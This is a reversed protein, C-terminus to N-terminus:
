AGTAVALWDRLERLRIRAEAREARAEASYHGHKWNARRSRALGDATNPGTSRGGHVRCRGNRMAPAPCPEADRKRKAGCRRVANAVELAASWAPKHPENAM